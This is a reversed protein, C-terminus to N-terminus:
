KHRTERDFEKQDDLQQKLAMIHASQDSVERDMQKIETDLAAVKADTAASSKLLQNQNSYFQFALWLAGIGKIGWDLATKLIGLNVPVTKPDSPEEAM